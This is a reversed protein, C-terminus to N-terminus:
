LAAEEISTEGTNAKAKIAIRGDPLRRVGANPSLGRHRRLYGRPTISLAKEGNLLIHVGRRDQTWSIAVTAEVTATVERNTTLTPM